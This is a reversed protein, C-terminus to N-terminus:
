GTFVDVSGDRGGTGNLKKEDALGFETDLTTRLKIERELFCVLLGVGAFPIGVHWARRLSQTFVKITEERVVDSEISALFAKTAIGYAHGGKLKLAVAPDSVMHANAACANNFVAAPITM